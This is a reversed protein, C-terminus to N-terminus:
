LGQGPKRYRRRSPDRIAAKITETFHYPAVNNVHGPAYRDAVERSAAFPDDTRRLWAATRADLDQRLAAHRPEDALNRRQFPDARDDYLLWPGRRTRVCTHGRTVLGRWEPLSNGGPMCPINIYQESPAAREDGLVFASADLGELGPPAEAGALALLTPMLDVLGLPGDTVRGAPVRGPWRMLMPVGVSERWPKCKWGRGQSFLMDGHDSAFVLLTGAALGLRDVADLLRGFAEDTASVHAYYGAIVDRMTTGPPYVKGAIVKDSFPAGEEANPLLRFTKDAYLDLFEKPASRYPCHPTGYSLFLCFPRRPSAAARSQLYEIAMATQSFPEYGQHWYPEPDDNLYYHAAHYDHTCNAVAWFDDFGRRRPGPPVFAGRDPGELHWKGIYGCRYGARNLTEALCPLGTRLPIDNIVLGHGLVHRGTLITARAPSCVPTNAVANTFRTGQGAFRDLHPTRVDEAGACGLATSRQQDTFVFLIDPRSPVSTSPEQGCAGPRSAAPVGNSAGGSM